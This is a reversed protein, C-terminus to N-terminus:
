MEKPLQRSLMLPFDKVTINTYVIRSLDHTVSTEMLRSVMMVHLSPHCRLILRYCCCERCGSVVTGLCSLSIPLVEHLFFVFVHSALSVESFIQCDDLVQLVTRSDMSRTTRDRHGTEDRM